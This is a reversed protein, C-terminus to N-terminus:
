LFGASTGQYASHGAYSVLSRHHFIVQRGEGRMQVPFDM